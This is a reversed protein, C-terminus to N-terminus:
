QARPSMLLAYFVSFSQKFLLLVSQGFGQWQITVGASNLVDYRTGAATLKQLNWTDNQYGVFFINLFALNVKWHLVHVVVMSANVAYM